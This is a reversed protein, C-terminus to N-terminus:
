SMREKQLFPGFDLISENPTNRFVEFVTQVSRRISHRTREYAHSTDEMWFKLIFLFQLWAAEAFLAPHRRKPSFLSGDKVLNMAYGKLCNRLSGFEPATKLSTGSGGLSFLVYNRHVALREFFADYFAILKERASLTTYGQEQHLAQITKEYRSEWIACDMGELTEFEMLFEEKSIPTEKCVSDVTLSKTGCKLVYTMYCAMIADRGTVKVDSKNSM